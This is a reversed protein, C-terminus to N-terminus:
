TIPRAASTAREGNRRAAPTKRRRRGARLKHSPPPPAWCCQDLFPASHSANCPKRGLYRNIRINGSGSLIRRLPEMKLGTHTVQGLFIGTLSLEASRRGGRAQCEGQAQARRRALRASLGLSRFRAAIKGAPPLPAPWARNRAASGGARARASRPEAPRGCGSPACLRGGVAARAGFGAPQCAARVPSAPDKGQLEIESGYFADRDAAVLARMVPHDPQHTQLYGIGRGEERGARGIVQHLLQFTREAARPDGNSLGLDADIVGVLNLKPFHHGKAVLQTGIIIDFRGEAVDALEQRLREVLEVLDSSLVLIRSDPFLEAQRRSWGSWALVSLLSALRGGPLEPVAGAEADLLRLPPLGAPAQLPSRGALCRLESLGISVRMAPLAHAARLRPSQPVAAGADGRELSTRVAEALRPAIFRGRPPGEARLDIPEIAPLHAGGFREPLHLRSYRGRRANVETEVSPTASVLVIPIGAGRARVVAMDRAHYRVGDEQKYAPDHEEDVVILGLASYPLFLASRAGVIVSVEGAAVGSWTRARLRPPLQSHWEAPRTGFRETFRDLFQSTLAIEPVLVLAQRGRRITEAVAELYVQTKGSGTVGDLLTVEYGGKAVTARLMDASKRQAPTLDPLCFELDPARAVPQPPLPQSKLTDEDVLGDIVGPSVGAEQVVESKARALGDALLALVRNRAATTRKPAPGALRVGIRERAPGLHEGMRLAMRLVMGRPGLTYASVWDVFNRLEPRLAPIDLKGEVEKMRNDLRPNPNQNESWVVGTATRAGLPVTVVDGPALALGLPVRYSYAQDLAVPVLVDVVRKAM